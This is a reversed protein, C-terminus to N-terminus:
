LMLEGLYFLWHFFLAVCVMAVLGAHVRAWRRGRPAPHTLLAHFRYPIELCLLGFLVPGLPHFRWSGAIDGHALACFSRSMGCLACKIGLTGYLWCHFPLPVGFLSLGEPGPRLMFATALVGLCLALVVADCVRQEGPASGALGLATYERHPLALTEWMRSAVGEDARVQTM